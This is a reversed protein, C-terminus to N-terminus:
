AVAPVPGPLRAGGRVAAALGAGYLAGCGPQVPSHRAHAGPRGAGHVHHRRERLRHGARWVASLGPRADPPALAGGYVPEDRRGPGAPRLVRLRAALPDGRRVRARCRWSRGPRDAAAVAAPVRRLLEALRPVLAAPDRPGHACSPWEPAM